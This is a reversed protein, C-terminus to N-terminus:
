IVDIYEKFAHFQEMLEHGKDTIKWLLNETSRVRVILKLDELTKLMEDLDGRNIKAYKGYIETISKPADTIFEILSVFLKSQLITYYDPYDELFLLFKEKEDM